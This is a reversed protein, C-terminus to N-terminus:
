PFVWLMIISQQAELYKWWRSLHIPVIVGDILCHVLRPIHVPHSHFLLITPGHENMPHFFLTLRRSKNYNFNQVPCSWETPQSSYSASLFTAVLHNSWTPNCIPNTLPHQTPNSLCAVRSQEPCGGVTDLLGVYRHCCCLYAWRGVYFPLCQSDRMRKVPENDRHIRCRAM